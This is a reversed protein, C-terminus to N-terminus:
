PETKCEAIIYCDLKVFAQHQVIKIRPYTQVSHKIKKKKKKKQDIQRQRDSLTYYIMVDFLNKIPYTSICVTLGDSLNEQFSVHLKVANSLAMEGM